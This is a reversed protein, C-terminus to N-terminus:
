CHVSMGVGAESERRRNSASPSILPFSFIGRDATTSYVFSRLFAYGHFSHSHLKETSLPFAVEWHQELTSDIM